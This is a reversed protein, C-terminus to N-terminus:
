GRTTAEPALVRLDRESVIKWGAASKVWELEQVVAGARRTRRGGIVYRKEFRTVARGADDSFTIEPAGIRIDVVDADRFVRTKEARVAARSVDRTRYFTTLRPAYFTMQAPVDGANTAAIWEQLRREIDRREEEVIAPSPAPLTKTARPVDPTRPAADRPVDHATTAPVSMDRTFASRVAAAAGLVLVNAVAAVACPVIVARAKARTPWRLRWGRWITTM